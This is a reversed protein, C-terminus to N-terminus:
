PHPRKLARPLPEYKAVTFVPSHIIFLTQWHCLCVVKCLIFDFSEHSDVSGIVVCTTVYGDVGITALISYWEGRTFRTRVGVPTGKVSQGWWRVIMCNDKSSEDATVVMEATM